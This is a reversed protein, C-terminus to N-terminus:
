IPNVQRLTLDNIDAENLRFGRRRAFEITCIRQGNLINYENASNRVEFWGQHDPDRAIIVPEMDYYNYVIANKGVTAGDETIIDM